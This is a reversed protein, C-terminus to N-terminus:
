NKAIVSKLISKERELLSKVIDAKVDDMKIEEKRYRDLRQKCWKKALLYVQNYYKDSTSDLGYPLLNQFIRKALKGESACEILKYHFLKYPMILLKILAYTQPTISGDATVRPSLQWSEPLNEELIQTHEDTEDDDDDGGCCGDECEDQCDEDQCDEDQYHSRDHDNHGHSHEHPHEELDDEPLAPRSEYQCTLDNVFEFGIHEYWDLKNNLQKIKLESNDSKFKKLYQFLQVSLVCNDNINETIFGYRQLLYPNSLGNGYTNFLEYKGKSKNPKKSLVIDCCKSGDSLLLALNEQDALLHQNVNSVNEEEQDTSVEEEDLHTEAESEDEDDNEDDQEESEEDKLEQEIKNIYEMTIEKLEPIDETQSSNADSHDIESHDDAVESNNDDLDSELSSDDADSSSFLEAEDVESDGGLIEDDNLNENDDNDDLDDDNDDNNEDDDDDDDNEVLQGDSDFQMDNLSDDDDDDFMGDEEIDMEEEDQHDECDLEGCVDCVDDGGDCVFHVDERGSIRSDENLVPPIHNFLDAGPVLSLGHFEDVEFARSIVTQVYKGFQILKEHHNDLIIKPLQDINDQNIEVNVDFVKPIEIFSSNVKAFNICEIFYNVLETNDLMNLLDCETNFLSKKYIEPWLCIPVNNFKSEETENPVMSQIYQFWPSKSGIALEYIFCIVISHMGQTLDVDFNVIHKESYDVLLNWILSNKPSLINEKPIRLLLNDDDEEDEDPSNFFVGIGSSEKSQEVDLQDNNWFANANLWEMLSAIKDSTTLSM